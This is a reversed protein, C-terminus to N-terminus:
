QFDVAATWLMAIDGAAGAVLVNTLLDLAVEQAALHATLM